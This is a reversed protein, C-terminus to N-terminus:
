FTTNCQTSAGRQESEDGYDHLCDLQKIIENM